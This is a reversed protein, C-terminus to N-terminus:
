AETIALSQLFRLLGDLQEKSIEGFKVAFGMAPEVYLVEGTFSMAHEAVRVSVVATEGVAPLAISEIFCGGASIGAIRCTGTGSAGNWTGDLPNTCRQFQRREGAVIPLTACPVAPM